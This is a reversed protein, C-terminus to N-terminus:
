YVSWNEWGAEIGEGNILEPTQESNNIWISNKVVEKRVKDYLNEVSIQGNADKITKLLFYTFLGHKKDQYPMSRQTSSTATFVVVNGKIAAEKPKIVIGRGVGSYCADMFVMTRKAKCEGLDAYLKDLKIGATPSSISVDVPVLYTEKSDVDHQGHGAYFICLEVNGPNTKSMMMLKNLNFNMQAYTANKLLIVNEKPVGLYSTAYAAFATADQVAYDVNVEYSTTQKFSNYDENGIVLAFRNPDPANVTEPLGALLESTNANEKVIEQRIGSTGQMVVQTTNMASTNQAMYQQDPIYQYLMQTGTETNVEANMKGTYFSLYKIDKHKQTYESLKAVITLMESGTRTTDPLFNTKLVTEEGPALMPITIQKDYGLIGEPWQLDVTVDKALDSGDNKVTIWLNAKDGPEIPSHDPNFAWYKAIVPKCANVGLAKFTFPSKVASYMNSSLGRFELNIDESVLDLGAKGSFYVTTDKHAKLLPVSVAMEDYEFWEQQDKQSALMVKVNEMDENSRNSLSLAISFREEAEVTNNLNSDKILIDNISLVPDVDSKERIKISGFRNNATVFAIGDRFDTASTFVTDIVLKGSRDIYGYKGNRAVWALGESFNGIRDYEVYLEQLGAGNIYIMTNNKMLLAAIGDENFDTADAGFTPLQEFDENVFSVGGDLHIKAYGNIFELPQVDNLYINKKNGKRNIYYKKGNKEVMAVGNSFNYVTDYKPEITMIGKKNIFGWRKNKRNMVPAMDETFEGYEFKSSLLQRKGDPYVYYDNEGEKALSIGNRFDSMEDFFFGTICKGTRDIVGWKGNQKAIATSNSFDGCDEFSPQIAINGKKDIYGWKGNQKFASLSDSYPRIQEYRIEKIWRFSAKTYTSDALSTNVTSAGASFAVATLMSLILSKKGMIM